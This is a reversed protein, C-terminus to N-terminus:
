EDGEFSWTNCLCNPFLYPKGVCVRICQQRGLEGEKRGGKREVEKKEGRDGKGERERGRQTCISLPIIRPLSTCTSAALSSFPKTSSGGSAALCGQACIPLM